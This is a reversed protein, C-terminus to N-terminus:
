FGLNWDFQLLDEDISGDIEENNYYDLSLFMNKGIGYAFIAEHGKANTEGEFFDSDPLIDLVADRELRRYNYTFAWQGLDKVKEEGFSLGVLWAQNDDDPDPNYIYEGFLTLYPISRVLPIDPVVGLLNLQATLGYSDYEYALGTTAGTNTEASYDLISDEVHTTDYYAAAVRLNAKDSFFLDFGPQVFWMFPDRGNAGNEDLVYYGANVFWGWDESPKDFFQAAVGEPTIDTDWILDSRGTWIPNKFKGGVFSAWETLKYQGYAFDLKIDDAGFSDRLTLNSSRPDNEGTALGIGILAKENVAAELGLRARIRTRWRDEGEDRKQYQERLRLDGKIKVKEIWEPLAAPKAQAAAQRAQEAQKAAEQKTEALVAQAEEQTLIGKEVLKQVLIDVEGAHANVSAAWLVGFAALIATCRKWIDANM